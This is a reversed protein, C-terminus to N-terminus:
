RGPPSLARLLRDRLPRPLIRDVVRLLAFPWPTVLHAKGRAAARVIRAAAVDASIALPKPGPVQRAAATDIFGPSVLTVKVGHPAVNIRLAEAFRALGAKSAAYATAFPLAHFAAASGILVIHGHRRAAMRAALETALAAPSVFNVVGLRAVQTASEVLDGAARIDGLGSAFMAVDFPTAGDDLVLAAIAADTDALDLSRVQTGTAGAASCAAAILSLRTADRGWLSLFAGERAFELALAGGLEGSAGTLLM